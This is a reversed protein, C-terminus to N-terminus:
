EVERFTFCRHDWRRRRSNGHAQFWWSTEQRYIQLLKNKYINGTEGAQLHSLLSQGVGMLKPGIFLAQVTLHTQVKAGWVYSKRDEFICDKDYKSGSYIVAVQSVRESSKNVQCGNKPLGKCIDTSPEVTPMLVTIVRSDRWHPRQSRVSTDQSM